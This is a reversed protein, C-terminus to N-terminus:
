HSTIDRQWSFNGENDKGKLLQLLVQSVNKHNRMEEENRKM